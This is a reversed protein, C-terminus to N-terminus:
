KRLFVNNKLEEIQNEDYIKVKLPSLSSINNNETYFHLSESFSTTSNHTYSEKLKIDIEGIGQFFEWVYINFKKVKALEILTKSSIKRIELFKETNENNFGLFYKIFDNYLPSTEFFTNLAKELNNINKLYMDIVNLVNKLEPKALLEKTNTITKLNINTPLNDFDQYIYKILINVTFYLYSLRSRLARLEKNNIISSPLGKELSFNHEKEIYRERIRPYLIGEPLSTNRFIDVIDKIVEKKIEPKKLFECASELSFGLVELIRDETNTFIFKESEHFGIFPLGEIKEKKVNLLNSIWRISWPLVKVSKYDDIKGELPFGISIKGGSGVEVSQKLLEKFMPVMGSIQSFLGTIINNTLLNRMPQEIGSLASSADGLGRGGQYHGPKYTEFKARKSLDSHFEFNQTSQSQSFTNCLQVPKEHYSHYSTPDQEINGYSFTVEDGEKKFFTPCLTEVSVLPKKNLDVKDQIGESILSDRTSLHYLTNGNSDYLNLSFVEQVIKFFTNEDNESVSKHIEDVKEDVSFLKEKKLKKLIKKLEILAKNKKIDPSFIREELLEISTKGKDNKLFPFAGEKLLFKILQFSGKQCAYHLATNGEYDVYNIGLTPDYLQGYWLSHELLDEDLEVDESHKKIELVIRESTVRELCVRKRIKLIKKESLVREGIESIVRELVVREKIKSIVDRKEDPGYQLMRLLGIETKIEERLKKFDNNVIGKKVWEFFINMKEKINGEGDEITPDGFINWLMSIIQGAYTKLSTLYINKDENNEIRWLDHAFINRKERLDQYFFRIINQLHQDFKQFFKNGEQEVLVDFIEYISSILRQLIPYMLVDDKQSKKNTPFTSLTWVPNDAYPFDPDVLRRNIDDDVSDYPDNMRDNYSSIQDQKFKNFYSYQDSFIPLFYILERVKSKLSLINLPLPHDIFWDQESFFVLGAVLNLQEQEKILISELSYTPHFFYRRLGDLTPLSNGLWLNTAKLQSLNKIDSRKNIKKGRSANRAITRHSKRAFFEKRLPKLKTFDNDNMIERLKKFREFIKIKITEFDESLSTMIENLDSNKEILQKLFFKYKTDQLLDPHVVVKNRLYSFTERFNLISDELDQDLPIKISNFSEYIISINELLLDFPIEKKYISLTKELYDFAIKINEYEYILGIYFRIDKLDFDSIAKKIKDDIKKKKQNILSSKDQSDHISKCLKLLQPNELLEARKKVIDMAKKFKSELSFAPNKYIENLLMKPGRINDGNPLKLITTAHLPRGSFWFGNTLEELRFPWERSMQEYQHREIQIELLNNILKELKFFANLELDQSIYEQIESLYSIKQGKKRPKNEIEEIIKQYLKENTHYREENDNYSEKWIKNVISKLLGTNIIYKSSGTHTKIEFIHHMYSLFKWITQRDEKPTALYRIGGEQVNLADIQLSLDKLFSVKKEFPITLNEKILNRRENLLCKINLLRIYDKQDSSNKIFYLPFPEVAKCTSYKLNEKRIFEKVFPINLAIDLSNRIPKQSVNDIGCDEINSSFIPSYVSFFIPLVSIIKIRALKIEM